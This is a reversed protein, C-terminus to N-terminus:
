GDWLARPGDVYDLFRNAIDAEATNGAHVIIRWRFKLSNGEEITYDPKHMWCNPAFLGYARVHWTTPYRFNDPHDFVAFGATEEGLPGFYDMWHAPKSWCGQEDSAGYSNVMQGGASTYISPAVRIGLFGGEKTGGITLSGESTQLEIAIDIIARERPADFVRITRRDSLLPKEGQFWSNRSNLNLSLPGHVVEIENQVTRGFTEPNSEGWCDVGNLAGQALVIGRQHPHEGKLYPPMPERLMNNGRLSLVPNIFPKPFDSGFNYTLFQSGGLAVNVRENSSTYAIGEANPVGGAPEAAFELVEGANAAPLVVSYTPRRPDREALLCKGEKTRLALCNESTGQPAPISVLAKPRTRPICLRLKM